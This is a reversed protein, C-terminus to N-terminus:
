WDRKDRGIGGPRGEGFRVLVSYKFVDGLTGAPSWAFDAEMSRWSVGFGLAAGAVVGADAKGTDYGARARAQLGPAATWTREVGLGLSPSDYRPADLEVAFLWGERPKYSAGGYVVTPLPDAVSVYRLAGGLNRVGAGASVSDGKWLWGGDLTTAAARATDLSSDVFKVTAGVGARTGPVALAYSAAYARDAAGFSGSAADTEVLGRREIGTASHSYLGLALVGLENARRPTDRFSLVPAAFIAADYSLGEFRSEHAGAAEVRELFALGGPNWWAAYADDAVGAFADGMASGRAGPALRLFAGAAAGRQSAGALAPAAAALLAAM